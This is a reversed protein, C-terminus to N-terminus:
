RAEAYWRRHALPEVALVVAVASFACVSVIVDGGSVVAAAVAGGVAVVPRVLTMPGLGLLILFTAPRRPLLWYGLLSLLVLAAFPAYVALMGEGADTLQSLSAPIAALVLLLALGLQGLAGLVLGRRLAERYYRGKRILGNRGTASRFGALAGDVLAIACLAVAVATSM